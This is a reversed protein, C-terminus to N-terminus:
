RHWMYARICVCVLWVDRAMLNSVRPPADWTHPRAACNCGARRRQVLAAGARVKVSVGHVTKSEIDHQLRDVFGPFLSSGGAVIIRKYFSRRLDIDCKNISEILANGAGACEYGMLDPQFMAQVSPPARVCSATLRWM